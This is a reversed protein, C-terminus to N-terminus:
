QLWSASGCSDCCWHGGAIGSNARAAEKSIGVTVIPAVDDFLGTQPNFLRQAPEYSACTGAGNILSMQKRSIKKLNKM